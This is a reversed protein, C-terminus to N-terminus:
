ANREGKSCYDDPNVYETFYGRRDCKYVDADENYKCFICDKCRVVEVVDAAPLKDIIHLIHNHEQTHILSAEVTRHNDKLRSGKYANIADLRKIFDDDM